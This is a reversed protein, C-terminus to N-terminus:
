APTPYASVFSGDHELDQALLNGKAQALGVRDEGEAIEVSASMEQWTLLVGEDAPV